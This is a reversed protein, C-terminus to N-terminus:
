FKFNIKGKIEFKIKPGILETVGEMSSYTCMVHNRRM